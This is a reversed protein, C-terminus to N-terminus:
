PLGALREPADLHITQGRVTAARPSVLSAVYRGVDEQTVPSRADAEGGWGFPTYLVVENVRVRSGEMEQMLARALMAQGATAISVLSSGPFPQFASPGNVLTYSGGAEALAPILTRAVVFHALLYDDLVRALDRREAAVLSPAAHWSGLTAVAADLRGTSALAEGRLRLADREDAVDGIMPVLRSRDRTALSGQLRDLREPSRSPVIVTAGAGLLAAVIRRGVNGTGGAVVATFRQGDGTSM